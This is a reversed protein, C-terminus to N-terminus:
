TFLLKSFNFLYKTKTESVVYKVQPRLRRKYNIEQLLKREHSDLKLQFCVYCFFM